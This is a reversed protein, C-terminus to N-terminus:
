AEEKDRFGQREENWLGVVICSMKPDTRRDSTRRDGSPSSVEGPVRTSLILEQMRLDLTKELAEGGGSIGLSAVAGEIRHRFPSSIPQPAKPRTQIPMFRSEPSSIATLCTPKQANEIEKAMLKPIQTGNHKKELYVKIPPTPNQNKKM